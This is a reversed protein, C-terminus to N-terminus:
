NMSPATNEISSLWVRYMSGDGFRGVYEVGLDARFDARCEAGAVLGFTCECHKAIRTFDSRPGNTPNGM